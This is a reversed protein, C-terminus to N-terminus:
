SWWRVDAELAAWLFGKLFLQSNSCWGDATVLLQTLLSLHIKSGKEAAQPSNSDYGSLPFLQVFGTLSSKKHVLASPDIRFLLLACPLPPVFMHHLGFHIRRLLQRSQAKCVCVCLKRGMFHCKSIHLFQIQVSPLHSLSLGPLPSSLSSFGPSM